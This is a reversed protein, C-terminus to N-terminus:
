SKYNENLKQLYEEFNINALKASTKAVEYIRAITLLDIYITANDNDTFKMIESIHSISNCGNIYIGHNTIKM